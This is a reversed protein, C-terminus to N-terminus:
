AIPAAKHGTNSIIKRFVLLLISCLGFIISMFFMFNYGFKEILYGSLINTIIATIGIISYYIGFATGRVEFKTTYSIRSLLINQIIAMNSGWLFGGITFLIIGDAFIFLLNSLILLVFGLVLLRHRGVIDSLLGIPYAALASGMNQFIMILGMVAEKKLISKGYLIIFTGAYNSLSYFTTILIVFMFQKNGLLNVVKQRLSIDCINLDKINEENNIEKPAESVGFLFFLSIVPPIAAFFLIYHYSYEKSSLLYFLLAGSMSGAWGFSQRLGYCAGRKNIPSIDGILADRPTAQLGNGIRDLNRGVIFLGAGSSVAIFAKSIVNIIYALFLLPKRRKMYDSILGSLIRSFESLAEVLGEIIGLSMMSIGLMGTMYSPAVVYVIISSMNLLFAIISIAWVSRPISFFGM